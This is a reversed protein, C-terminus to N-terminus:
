GPPSPHGCLLRTFHGFVLAPVVCSQHGNEIHSDFLYISAVVRAIPNPVGHPFLQAFRSQASGRFGLWCVGKLGALPIREPIKQVGRGSGRYRCRGTDTWVSMASTRGCRPDTVDSLGIAALVSGHVRVRRRLHGDMRDASDAALRQGLIAGQRWGLEMLQDPDFQRAM